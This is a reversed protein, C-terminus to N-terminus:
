AGDRGSSPHLMVGASAGAKALRFTKEQAAGALEPLEQWHRWVIEREGVEIRSRSWTQADPRCMRVNEASPRGGEHFAALEAVGPFDGLAGFAARRAPIVQAPNWSSSTVPMGAEAEILDAGDWDWRHIAEGDMAVLTFSAFVRLDRAGLDSRVVCVDRSTAMEWVLRGRSVPEPPAAENWRNLLAVILGAPNVSLWTGGGAPDRPALFGDARWAPLEASPRKKKEDRNFFVGYGSENRWWTLTCM